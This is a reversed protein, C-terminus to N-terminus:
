SKLYSSFVDSIDRIQLFSDSLEQSRPHSNTGIIGALLGSKKIKELSDNPMVIHTTVAYIEKAGAKKYAEAAQILSGGTRIMDDYIVVIKGQVDANIGTLELESGSKRNKYVFAAEVGLDNALSAVWKARGADTSALVFDSAISQIAELIVKKAYVHTAVIESGFYHPIGEAHLDLLYLRLNTTARPIASFLLARNKAKVVEGAKVSREMTAYGFYPLVIKLSHVGQHVLACALDFIELTQDHNCTGGLLIVDKADVDTEIRHYKEGDPFTKCQIHGQEFKTNQIIKDALYQYDPLSFLIM